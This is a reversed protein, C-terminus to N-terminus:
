TRSAIPCSRHFAGGFRVQAEENIAQEGLRYAERDQPMNEFRYGITAITISVSMSRNWSRSAATPTRDHQPILHEFVTRWFQAQEPTFYRIPPPQEVRMTILNRTAEDWFAKQSMTSFGPYYGPQPTPQLPENTAPDRPLLSTDPTENPNM